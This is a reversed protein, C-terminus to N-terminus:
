VETKESVEAPRLDRERIARAEETIDIGVPCWTICRGCGVCGPTGFQDQWNALKHSIWQRYRAKTSPRVSGGHIYSFDLTFCSDWRRIRQASTGTLDTMDEVTSCFCTPCVMTCNGCSLCRRGVKDWYVNDMNAIFLEKLGTSDLSRGMKGAAESTKADALEVAEDSAKDCPLKAVVALGKKSGVDVVFYHAKTEIIETLALDFGETAKPGADMSACFCNNGAEVCNVVVLLLNERRRKYDEDYYEGDKLVRDHILLAHLECSRVGIFALKDFSDPPHTIKYGRKDRTADLIVRRSPYLFRKLSQPGVNYGFLAKDGREALRYKAAQQDDTVGEPLDECTSIEDYVIAGDRVKPGILKHGSEVLAKFLAPLHERGLVLRDGIKFSSNEAM